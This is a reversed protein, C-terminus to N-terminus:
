VSMKTIGKLVDQCYRIPRVINGSKAAYLNCDVRKIIKLKEEGQLMVLVGASNIGIPRHPNIVYGVGNEEVEKILVDYEKDKLVIGYPYAGTLSHYVCDPKHDNYHTTYCEVSCYAVFKCKNCLLVANKTCLPYRCLGSLM